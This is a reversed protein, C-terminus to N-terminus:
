RINESMKLRGIHFNGSKQVLINRLKVFKDYFTGKELLALTLANPKFINKRTVRSLITCVDM